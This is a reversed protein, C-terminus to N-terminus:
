NKYFTFLSAREVFHLSLNIQKKYRKYYDDINYFIVTLYDGYPSCAIWNVAGQVLRATGIWAKLTRNLIIKGKTKSWNESNQLYEKVGVIDILKSIKHTPLYKTCLITFKWCAASCTAAILTAVPDCTTVWIVWQGM